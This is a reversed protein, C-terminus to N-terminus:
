RALAGLVGLASALFLLGGCCFIMPLFYAVAARWGDTPHGYAAGLIVLVISWIGGIIGGCFPVVGLLVPSQGYAVARLTVSFGRQGDGLLMLMLHYIAASILVCAAALVPSFIMFVLVFGTSLIFEGPGAGGVLSGMSGFLLQWISSFVAAITGIVVGYILPDGIDGERMGSFMRVPDSFALKLTELFRTAFPLSHDEFPVTSGPLADM